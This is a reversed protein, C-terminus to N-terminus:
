VLESISGRWSYSIGSYTLKCFFNIVFVFSVFISVIKIVSWIVKSMHIRRFNILGNPKQIAGGATNYPQIPAMSATIKALKMM